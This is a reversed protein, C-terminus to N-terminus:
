ICGSFSNKEARCMCMKNEIRRHVWLDHQDMSGPHIIQATHHEKQYKNDCSNCNKIDTQPSNQQKRSDTDTIQCQLDAQHDAQIGTFPNRLLCSFPDAKPDLHKQKHNCSQDNQIEPFFTYRKCCNRCKKVPRDQPHNWNDSPLNGCKM